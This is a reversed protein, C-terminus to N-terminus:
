GNKLGKKHNSLYNDAESKIEKLTKRKGTKIWKIIESKFFFLRNGKKQYPIENRQCYAYITPKTLGTLKVVEEIHIPNDPEPKPQNQLKQLLAIVEDVRNSLSAVSIPLSDFSLNDM